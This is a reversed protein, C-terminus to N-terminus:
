YTHRNLADWGMDFKGKFKTSWEPKPQHPARDRRVIGTKRALALTVRLRCFKPKQGVRVNRIIKRPDAGHHVEEGWSCRVFTSIRGVIVRGDMITKAYDAREAKRLSLSTVLRHFSNTMDRRIMTESAADTMTLMAHM